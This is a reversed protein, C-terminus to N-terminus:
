KAVSLAHPTEIDIIDETNALHHGCRGCQINDKHTHIPDEEEEVCNEELTDECNMFMGLTNEMEREVGVHGLLSTTLTSM